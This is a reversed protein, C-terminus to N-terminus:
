IFEVTDAYGSLHIKSSMQFMLIECYFGIIMTSNAGNLGLSLPFLALCLRSLWFIHKVVWKSYLFNVICCIM